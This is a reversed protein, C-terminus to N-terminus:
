PASDSASPPFGIRRPEAREPAKALAVMMLSVQSLHQVVEVPRGEETEGRFIILHPDAHDVATLRFPEPYGSSALRMGLEEDNKLAAEFARVREMLRERLYGAPNERRDARDHIEALAAENADLMASVDLGYSM